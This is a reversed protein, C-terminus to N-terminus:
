VLDFNSHIVKNIKDAIADFSLEERFQKITKEKEKKIDMQMTLRLADSLAKENGAEYLLGCKGPGTMKRFSIIDTVIPICGCSMAECVSIGGGEYHSGSIIFDAKDYWAQLQQHPVKGVLNIAQLVNKNEKILDNIEPLLEESQYILCLKALPQVALFHIFGKVVTLPDKNADLRGVWLFVPSGTPSSGSRKADKSRAGFISSGHLVEHIKERDHINRKEVWEKGFESSSFLHADVCTDALRQLYGKLGEFPKESRNLVIIKVRNGLKLRLQIIQLPFIFGNIFVIDPSLKKILRHIRWPFHVTKRKQRIFFYQVGQQIYEGEYNIREIGIVTNDKSLSELIGTYGEIRKLWERPQDFEPSSSYSTFILKM